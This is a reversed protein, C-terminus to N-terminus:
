TKGRIDGLLHALLVHQVPLMGTKWIVSALSISDLLRQDQMLPVDNSLHM